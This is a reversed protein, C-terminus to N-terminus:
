KVNAQVASLHNQILKGYICSSMLNCFISLLVFILVYAFITGWSSKHRKFTVVVKAEDINVKERWHYALYKDENNHDGLYKEWRGLELMRANTIPPASFTLTDKACKMLFIHIKSFVKKGKRNRIESKVRDEIDRQSNIRFDFMDTNEFGSELLFNAPMYVKRFLEDTLSTFRLRFYVNSCKIKQTSIKQCDFDITTEDANNIIEFFNQGRDNKSKGNLPMFFDEGEERKVFMYTQDTDFSTETMDNFISPILSRDTAMIEALNDVKVNGSPFHIKLSNFKKYEFILVGIDFFNMKTQPEFDWINIHLEPEKNKGLSKNKNNLTYWVILNNQNM